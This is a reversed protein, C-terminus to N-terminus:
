RKGRMLRGALLDIRDALSLSSDGARHSDLVRKADEIEEILRDKVGFLFNILDEGALSVDEGHWDFEIRSGGPGSSRLWGGTDKSMARITTPDRQGDSQRSSRDRSPTTM